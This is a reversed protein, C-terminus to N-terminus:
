TARRESDVLIGDTQIVFRNAASFMSAQYLLNRGLGRTSHRRRVYILIGVALTLVILGGVITGILVSSKHNSLTSPNGPSVGATPFSGAPYSATSVIKSSRLDMM